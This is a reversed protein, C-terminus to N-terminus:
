CVCQTCQGFDALMARQHHPAVDPEMEIADLPQPIKAFDFRYQSFAIQRAM